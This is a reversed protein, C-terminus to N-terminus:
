YCVPNNREKKNNNTKAVFYNIFIKFNLINNRHAKATKLEVICFEFLEWIWVKQSSICHILHFNWIMFLPKMHVNNVTHYSIIKLPYHAPEATLTDAVCAQCEVKFVMLSTSPFAWEVTTWGRYVYEVFACTVAYAVWM